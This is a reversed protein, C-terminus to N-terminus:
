KITKFVYGESKLFEIIEPLSEVTAQKTAADHMLIVIDEPNGGKVISEKLRDVLEKANRTRKKDGDKITESDGNLVNWDLSFYGAEKLLERYLEKEKGFSGGPFRYVRTSFEEGLINKLSNITLILDEKFFEPSNYMRKYDHYYSHMCIAHGEEYTKKLVEPYKDAMQGMVFFSAKVDYSDLVELIKPTINKTPGDDFTLYANKVGDKKFLDEVMVEYEKLQPTEPQNEKTDDEAGVPEPQTDKPVEDTLPKDVINNDEIKNAGSNVYQVNSDAAAKGNSNMFFLVGSAFSLIFATIMGIVLAKKPKQPKFLQRKSNVSLM